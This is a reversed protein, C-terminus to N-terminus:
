RESLFAEYGQKQEVPIPVWFRITVVHDETRFVYGHGEAGLTSCDVMGRSDVPTTLAEAAKREGIANAAEAGTLTEVVESAAQAAERKASLQAAQQRRCDDLAAQREPTRPQSEYAASKVGMSPAQAPVLGRRLGKVAEAYVFDAGQANRPSLVELDVIAGSSSRKLPDRLRATCASKGASVDLDEPMVPRGLFKSAWDEPLLAECPAKRMFFLPAARLTMAGVAVVAGVALVLPIGPHPTRGAFLFSEARSLTYQRRRVLAITARVIIPSAFVLVALPLLYIPQM